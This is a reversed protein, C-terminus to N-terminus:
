IPDADNLVFLSLSLCLTSAGTSGVADSKAKINIGDFTKREYFLHARFELHADNHLM